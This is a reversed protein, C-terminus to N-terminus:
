TLIEICLIDDKHILLYPFIGLIPHHFSQIIFQNSKGDIQILIGSCSQNYSRLLIKVKKNIFYRKLTILSLLRRKSRKEKIEEISNLKTLTIFVKHPDNKSTKSSSTCYYKGYPIGQQHLTINPKILISNYQFIFTNLSKFSLKLIVNGIDKLTSNEKNVFVFM